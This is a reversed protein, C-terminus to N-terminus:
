REKFGLKKLFQDTNIISERTPMKFTLPINVNIVPLRSLFYYVLGMSHEQIFKFLGEKDKALDLAKKEGIGAFGPLGNHGGSLASVWPWQSPPINYKQEFESRTYVENKGRLLFTEKKSNCELCQFLDSDNSLVYISGKLKSILIAILDDSELGQYKLVTINLEKFAENCLKKTEVFMQKGALSKGRRSKKYKSFILERFYPPFDDCVILRGVEFKRIAGGIQSLVGYIGGTFVGGRFLNGHVYIAKHVLNNLDVILTGGDKTELMNNFANMSEIM